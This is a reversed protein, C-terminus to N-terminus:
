LILALHEMIMKVSSGRDHLYDRYTAILTLTEVSDKVDYKEHLVQELNSLFALAESRLKGTDEDDAHVKLFDTVYALREQISAEIFTRATSSTESIEKKIVYARSRLTDPITTVLPIFLFFHRGKPSEEFLKLLANAAEHTISECLLIFFRHTGSMQAEIAHQKFSRVDDIGLTSFTQRILDPNGHIPIHEREFFSLLAHENEKEEVVYFHHLSGITTTQLYTELM